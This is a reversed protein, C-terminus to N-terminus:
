PPEPCITGGSGLGGERRDHSREKLYQDVERVCKWLGQVDNLDVFTQVSPVSDIMVYYKGEGDRYIAVYTHGISSCYGFGSVKESV